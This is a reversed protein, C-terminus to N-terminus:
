DDGPYDKGIFKENKTFSIENQLDLIENKRHDKIKRPVDDKLGAAATGEEESYTFVGLRDFQTETIFDTLEKFDDDTEGPYGVILTTRLAISPMASRLNEIRKKIGSQGLGRKMSRLINDSAHQIPMDLYNCVKNSGAMADIIKPTLYAPHAYHVRIWEIEELNNLELLLDGLDTKKWTGAMPHQIRHLSSYSRPEMKRYDRLRTLLQSSQGVKQLGRM